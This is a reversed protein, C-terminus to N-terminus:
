RKKSEKEFEVIGRYLASRLAGARTAPRGPQSMSEALKDIREIWSEPLRVATQVHNEEPKDTM